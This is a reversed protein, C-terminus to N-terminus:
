LIVALDGQAQRLGAELASVHQKVADSKRPDVDLPGVNQPRSEDAAELDELGLV